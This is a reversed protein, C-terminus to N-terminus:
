RLDGVPAAARRRACAPPKRWRSRSRPIAASRRARCWRSGAAPATSISSSAPERRHRARAASIYVGFICYSPTRYLPSTNIANGPSTGGKSTRSRYRAISPCSSRPLRSTTARRSGQPRGRALYRRDRGSRAALRLLSSHGRRRRGPRRVPVLRQHQRGSMLPWRGSLVYGGEVSRARGCAPIFIGSVFRTPDDGRLDHQGEDPWHSLMFNHTIHQVMCWATSAAAADRRDAGRGRQGPQSRLRRVAGAPVPARHRGIEPRDRQGAANRAPRRRRLGARAPSSHAGRDTRGSRTLEAHFEETSSARCVCSDRRSSAVPQLLLWRPRFPDSARRWRCCESRRRIPRRIRYRACRRRTPRHRCRTGAPLQARSAPSRSSGVLGGLDSLPEIAVIAEM